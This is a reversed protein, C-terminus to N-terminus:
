QSGWSDSSLREEHTKSVVSKGDEGNETESDSYEEDFVPQTCEVECYPLEVVECEEEEYTDREKNNNEDGEEENETPHWFEAFHILDTENCELGHKCVPLRENGADPARETQDSRIDSSRKGSDSFENSISPKENLMGNQTSDNDTKLRKVEPEMTFWTQLDGAFLM